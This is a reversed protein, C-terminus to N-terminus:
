PAQAVVRGLKLASNVAQVPVILGGSTRARKWLGVISVDFPPKKEQWATLNTAVM